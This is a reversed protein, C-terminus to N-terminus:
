SASFSSLDKVSMARYCENYIRGCEHDHGRRLESSAVRADRIDTTAQQYPDDDQEEIHFPATKPYTDLLHQERPSAPIGRKIVQVAPVVTQAAIGNMQVISGLVVNPCTVRQDAQVVPNMQLQRAVMVSLYDKQPQQNTFQGKHLTQTRKM